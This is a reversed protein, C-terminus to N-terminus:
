SSTKPLIETHAQNKCCLFHPSHHKSQTGGKGVSVAPHEEPEPKTERPHTGLAAESPATVGGFAMAKIGEAGSELVKFGVAKHPLDPPLTSPFDGGRSAVMSFQTNFRKSHQSGKGRLHPCPCPSPKASLPIQWWVPCRCRLEWICPPPHAPCLVSKQQMHMCVLM